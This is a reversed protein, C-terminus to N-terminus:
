SAQKLKRNALKLLQILDTKSLKTYDSTKVTPKIPPQTSTINMDNYFNLLDQNEPDQLLQERESSTDYNYLELLKSQAM